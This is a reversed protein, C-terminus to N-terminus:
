FSCRFAIMDFKLPRNGFCGNNGKGSSVICDRKLFRFDKIFSKFTDKTQVICPWFSASKWKPVVLTCTAREAVLKNVCALALRPPPVLWNVDRSWDQELANIAETGPVWWRSNFRACYNNLHSAFRDVSHPGWEQDLQAFVDPRIQWDDSDYCRSLYDSITNNERPIWEPCLVINKEECFKNLGVAIDHIYSNRSGNLLVSKVNKNDSYVKVYSNKLTDGHSKVVRKVAETERWTSSLSQESGSWAGVVATEKIKCSNDSGLKQFM